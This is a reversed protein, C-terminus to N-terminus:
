PPDRSKTKTETKRKRKGRFSFIVIFHTQSNPVPSSKYTAISLAAQVAVKDVIIKLESAYNTLPMSMEGAPVTATPKNPPGDTSPIGPM